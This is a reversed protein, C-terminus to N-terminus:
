DELYTAPQVNLYLVTPSEAHGIPQVFAAGTLPEPAIQTPLGDLGLFVPDGPIWAWGDFSVPGQRQVDVLAGAAAAGLTMGLTDDGHAPNANSAYDVGNATSRVIRHGGIDIAATRQESTGGPAGRPGQVGTTGVAVTDTRATVGTLTNRDRTGVPTARQVVTNVASNRSVVVVRLANSGVLVTM